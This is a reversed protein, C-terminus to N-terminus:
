STISFIIHNRPFMINIELTTGANEMGAKEMGAKEM